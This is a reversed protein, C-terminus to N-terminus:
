SRTSAPAVVRIGYVDAFHRLALRENEVGNQACAVTIRPPAAAALAGLAAATDQTKMALLVVDGDRYTLGGPGAALPFEFTVDDEPTELRLGHNRIAEYHAGRAILAVDYGAQRLLAGIVGGIAGAGYVAFRM